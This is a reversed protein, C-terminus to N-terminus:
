ANDLILRNMQVLPNETKKLTNNVSHGDPEVHSYNQMIPLLNVSM